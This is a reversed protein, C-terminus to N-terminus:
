YMCCRFGTNPLADTRRAVAFDFDCARGEEIHNYSGGRVEFFSGGRSTATWERVNGSLDFVDGAAGWSAFCMPFESAGTQYLCDQDGALSADCDHEAGNCATRQSTTCMSGYSWECSGGPGQCAAQWDLAECLRWGTGGAGPCAGSENLACCAAQAADWTVNTWPLV